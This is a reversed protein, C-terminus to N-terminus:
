YQETAYGFGYCKHPVTTQGQHYQALVFSGFPCAEVGIPSLSCLEHKGSGLACGCLIHEVEVTGLSAVIDMQSFALPRTHVPACARGGLQGSPLPLCTM